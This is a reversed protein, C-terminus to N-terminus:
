QRAYNDKANYTPWNLRSLDILSTRPQGLRARYMWENALVQKIYGRTESAPFSEIWLLPDNTQFRADFSRVRGNGANYAALMKIINNDVNELAFLDIVHQQGLWMSDAPNTLSLSQMRVGNNSATIRATGPMLQLLGTAGAHSRANANFRSEQKAIAFLLARDINWGGRPEWSPLPYMASLIMNRNIEVIGREKIIPAVALATRPLEEATSLAHIAHILEDDASPTLMNRLHKEAFNNKGIQILAFARQGNRNQMILAVDENSLSTEYFRYRPEGGMKTAAMAGYFSAPRTNVVHRWHRRRARSDGRQEAARGAWFHAEILRNTNIHTLKTMQEFSRQSERFNGLKFNMLGLTWLGFESNRDAAIQGWHGAIEYEAGSYAIFAFRGALRGYDTDSINNKLKPNELIAIARDYERRRMHRLFNGVLRGTEGRYVRTTQAEHFPLGGGRPGTVPLSHARVKVRRRNALRHIQDAGAHAHYLRMWNQLEAASTKYNPSMFRQLLVEGMLINDELRKELKRADAFQGRAQLRFIRSYTEVDADSLVAPLEVASLNTIITIFAIFTIILKKM